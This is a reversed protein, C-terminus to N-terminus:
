LKYSKYLLVLSSTIVLFLSSTIVLNIPNNLVAVPSKTLASQFPRQLMLRLTNPFSNTEFRIPAKGNLGITTFGSYFPIRCNEVPKRFPEILIFSMM